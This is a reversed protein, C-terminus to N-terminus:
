RMRRRGADTDAEFMTGTLVPTAPKEGAFTNASIPWSFTTESSTLSLQGPRKMRDTFAAPHAEAGSRGGNGLMPSVRQSLVGAPCVAGNSRYGAPLRSITTPNALRLSM